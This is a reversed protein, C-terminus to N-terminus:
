VRYYRWSFKKAWSFVISSCVKHTSPFFEIGRNRKVESPSLLPPAPSKDSYSILELVHRCANIFVAVRPTVSARSLHLLLLHLEGLLVFSRGPRGTTFEVAWRGSTRALSSITRARLIFARRILITIIRSDELRMTPVDWYEHAIASSRDYSIVNILFSYRLIARYL